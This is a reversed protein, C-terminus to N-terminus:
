WSVAPRLLHALAGFWLHLNYLPLFGSHCTNMPGRDLVDHFGVLLLMSTKRRNFDKRSFLDTNPM